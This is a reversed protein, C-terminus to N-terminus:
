GRNLIGCRRRNHGLEGCAGCANQAGGRGRRLLRRYETQKGTSLAYMAATHSIKFHEGIASWTKGAERMAAIEIRRADFYSAQRSNERYRGTPKDAVPRWSVADIADGGEFTISFTPTPLKFM